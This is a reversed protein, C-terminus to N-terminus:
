NEKPRNWWRKWARKERQNKQVYSSFLREYLFRTRFVRAFVNTFDVGQSDHPSALSSILKVLIKHAAKTHASWLLAFLCQHSSQRKSIQPDELTFVKCLCLPSISVQPWNWWWILLLNKKTCIGFNYFSQHSVTKKRKQSRRTYFNCMFMNTFNVRSPLFPTLWLKQWPCNTERKAHAVSKPEFSQRVTFYSLDVKTNGRILRKQLRYTIDCIWIGLLL